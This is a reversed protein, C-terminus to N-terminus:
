TAMQTDAMSTDWYDRWATIKGDADLEYVGVIPLSMERGDPTSLRELREMFVVKDSALVQRVEMSYGSIAAMYAAWLPRIADRGRAAEAKLDPQFVAGDTIRSLADELDLRCWCDM